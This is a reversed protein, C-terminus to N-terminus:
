GTRVIPLYRIRVRRPQVTLLAGRELEVKRETLLVQILRALPEARLGEIRIRVVSPATAGSLALIAHFDADLTVVVRGERRALELLIADDATALGIEGTHVADIEAARLLSAASRPLGQDLLLKM